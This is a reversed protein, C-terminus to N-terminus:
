ASTASGIGLSSYGLMSQLLDYDGVVVEGDRPNYDLVRSIEEARQMLWAEDTTSELVTDSPLIVIQGAPM